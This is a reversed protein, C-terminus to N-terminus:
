SGSEWIEPQLLKKLDRYADGPFLSLPIKLPPKRTEPTPTIIATWSLPTRRPTAESNSHRHDILVVASIESFAVFRQAALLGRYSIGDVRIDLSLRRLLSVAILLVLFSAGIGGLVWPGHSGAHYVAVFLSLAWAPVMCVLFYGNAGASYSSPVVEVGRAPYGRIFLGM